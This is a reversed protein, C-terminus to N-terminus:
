ERNERTKKVAKGRVGPSSSFSVWDGDGRGGVVLDWIFLKPSLSGSLSKKLSGNSGYPSSPIRCPNSSELNSSCTNASEQYNERTIAEM